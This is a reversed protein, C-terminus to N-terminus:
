EINSISTSLLTNEIKNDAASTMKGELRKITSSVMNNHWTLFNDDHHIIKKEYRNPM